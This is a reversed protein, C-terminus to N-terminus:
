VPMNMINTYAALVKDRVTAAAQLALSAEELSMMVDSLPINQQGAAFSQSTTDAAAVSNDLRDLAAGFIESFSPQQTGPAAPNAPQPLPASAATALDRMVAALGDMATVAASM